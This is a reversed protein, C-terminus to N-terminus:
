ANRSSFLHRISQQIQGDLLSAVSNKELSHVLDSQTRGGMRLELKLVSFDHALQPTVLRPEDKRKIEAASSSEAIADDGITTGARRPGRPREPSRMDPDFDGM